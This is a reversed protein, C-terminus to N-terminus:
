WKKYYYKPKAETHGQKRNRKGGTAGSNVSASQCNMTKTGGGTSSNGSTLQCKSSRKEKTSKVSTLHCKFPEKMGVRSSKVPTLHCASLKRGGASGVSTSTLQCKLSKKTSSVPLAILANDESSISIESGSSYGSSSPAAISGFNNVLANDDFLSFLSGDALSVDHLNIDPFFAFIIIIM